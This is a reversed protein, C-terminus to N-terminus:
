PEPPRWGYIPAVRRLIGETGLRNMAADRARDIPFPLHYITGQQVALRALRRTRGRRLAAYGELARSCPGHERVAHRLMAADELAMAAGQALFPLMAHAADGAFGIGQHHFVHRPRVDIPWPAWGDVDAIRRGSPTRALAGPGGDRERALLVCNDAGGALPYRVFHHGHGLALVTDRGSARGRGRWAVWGTARPADGVVARRVASNVGDAAIVLRAIVDVGGLHWGDGARSVGEVAAGHRVEVSHGAVARALAGHLAARSATLYPAGFRQEMVPRYALRVLPREGHAPLVCLGDPADAALAVVGAAGISGLAKVANPSVQIGAGANAAESSRRELVVVDDVDHLALAVALGAIGGGVVAITM